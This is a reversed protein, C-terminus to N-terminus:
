SFSGAERKRGVAKQRSGEPLGHWKLLNDCIRTGAPPPCTTLNSSWGRM